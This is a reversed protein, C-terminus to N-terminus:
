GHRPFESSRDQRKTCEDAKHGRSKMVKLTPTLGFLECKTSKFQLKKPNLTIGNMRATELQRLVNADHDKSHDVHIGKYSTM